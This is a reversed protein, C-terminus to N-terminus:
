AMPSSIVNKYPHLNPDIVTIGSDRLYMEKIIRRLPEEAVKARLKGAVFDM